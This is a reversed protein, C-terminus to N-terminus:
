APLRYLYEAQQSGFGSAVFVLKRNSSLKRLWDFACADLHTGHRM